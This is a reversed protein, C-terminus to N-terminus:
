VEPSPSPLLQDIAKCFLDIYRQTNSSIREAFAKGGVISECKVIVDSLYLM